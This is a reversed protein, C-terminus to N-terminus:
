SPSTEKADAEVPPPPPLVRDTALILARARELASEVRSPPPLLNAFKVQDCEAMFAGFRDIFAPTFERARLAPLLESTTLEEAGFAHAEGLFRRVAGSLLFYYERTQGATRLGAAQGLADLAREEPTRPDAAEPEAEPESEPRRRLYGLLAVGFLVFVVAIVFPLWQAPTLRASRKIPRLVAIEATPTAVAAAGSAENVIVTVPNSERRVREGTEPRVFEVQAPPIEIRGTHSAVMHIEKFTILHTRGNLINVSSRTFIDPQQFSGSLEPPTIDPEVPKTGYTAVEVTYVLPDGLNVPNPSVQARVYEGGAALAPAPLALAFWLLCCGLRRASM